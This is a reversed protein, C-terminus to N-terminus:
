LDNHLDEANTYYNDIRLRTKLSPHNNFFLGGILIAPAKGAFNAEISEILTQLTLLQHPMSVSLAIADPTDSDIYEIISRNPTDTGIFLSEWGNTEFADSVMRLGLGHHNGQICACLVTKDIPDKFKALAFAKALTNQSIATALHEQAVSIKNQQWLLGIRYMAPQIINVSANVLSAGQNIAKIVREEATKRNGTVLAQSYQKTESSSTLEDQEFAFSLSTTSKLAKIGLDMTFTLSTHDKDNLHTLLAKKLLTFSDISHQSPQRYSQLVDRLWLSYDHFIEPCATVLASYLFNLHHQLDNRCIERITQENGRHCEPHMKFYGETVALSVEPEARKLEALGAPSIPKLKYNTTM